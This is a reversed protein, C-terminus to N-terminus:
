VAVIDKGEAKEKCKRGKKRKTYECCPLPQRHSGATTVQTCLRSDPPPLPRSSTAAPTSTTDYSRDYRSVWSANRAAYSSEKDVARTIALGKTARVAATAAPLSPTTPEENNRSPDHDDGKWSGWSGSLFRDLTSNSAIALLLLVAAAAAGIAVIRQERQALGAYWNEVTSFNM